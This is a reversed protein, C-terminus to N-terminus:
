HASVRGARDVTVKVQTNGRMGTGHWLGDAGIQLNQPNKYGDQEIRRQAAGAAGTLRPAPASAINVAASSPVDDSRLAWIPANPAWVPATDHKDETGGLAQKGRLTDPKQQGGPPPAAGANIPRHVGPDYMVWQITQAAATDVTAVLALTLLIRKM